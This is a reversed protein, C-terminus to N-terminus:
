WRRLSKIWLHGRRQPDAACIDYRDPCIPAAGAASSGYLLLIRAPPCTVSAHTGRLARDYEATKFCRFLVVLDLQQKVSLNATM